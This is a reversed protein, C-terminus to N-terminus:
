KKEQRISNGTEDTHFTYNEGNATLVVKFGPTIADSCMENGTELGLCSNKWLVHEVSAVSIASTDVKLQEALKSIVADIAKKQMAPDVTPLGGPAVGEAAGGAPQTGPGCEGRYYAWEDCESGDPFICVGAQSGDAATRIELRNGKDVCNVSAPNALGASKDQATDTPKAQVGAGQPACASLFLVGVMFVVLSFFLRTKM